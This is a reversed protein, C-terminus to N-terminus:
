TADQQELLEVWSWALFDFKYQKGDQPRPPTDKWNNEAGCWVTFIGADIKTQDPEPRPIPPVYQCTADDFTWASWNEAQPRVAWADKIPQQYAAKEEATMDRISWVDTWVGDIKEYTPEDSVVKYLENPKEVRVFPEWNNPIGGFAEVLNDQFAPHNVPQGAIVQIYLNM